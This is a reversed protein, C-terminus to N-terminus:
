FPKIRKRSYRPNYQKKKTLSHDDPFLREPSRLIFAEGDEPTIHLVVEFGKGDPHPTAKGIELYEPGRLLYATLDPGTPATPEVTSFPLPPREDTM